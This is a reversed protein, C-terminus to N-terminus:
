WMHKRQPPHLPDKTQSNIANREVMGKPLLVSRRLGRCGSSASGRDGGTGDAGATGSAGGLFRGAAMSACCSPSCRYLPLYGRLGLCRGAAQGGAVSSEPSQLKFAWKTGRLVPSISIFLQACLACETKKHDSATPTHTLNYEIAAEKPHPHFILLKSVLYIVIEAQNM